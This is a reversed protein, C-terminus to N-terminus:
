IMYIKLGLAKAAEVEKDTAGSYWYNDFVHGDVETNLYPALEDETGFLFLKMEFGNKTGRIVWYRKYM